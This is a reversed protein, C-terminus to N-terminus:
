RLHEGADFNIDAAIRKAPIHPAGRLLGVRSPRVGECSVIAFLISRRPRDPLAAFAERDRACAGVGSANDVAGNYITDGKADPKGIGLHDHHATFIV